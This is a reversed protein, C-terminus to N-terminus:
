NEKRVSRELEGAESGEATRVGAGLEFGRREAM